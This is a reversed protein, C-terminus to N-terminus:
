LDACAIVGPGADAPLGLLVLSYSSRGLQSADLANPPVLASAEGFGAPTVDIEGTVGATRSAPSTTASDTAAACDDQRIEWGHSGPRVDNLEITITLAGADGSQLVRVTGVESGEEDATRTLSSALLLPLEAELKQSTSAITDSVSPRELTGATSDSADEDACGTLLGALVVISWAKAM